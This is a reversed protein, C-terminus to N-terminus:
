RLAEPFILGDGLVSTARPWASAGGSGCRLNEPPALRAHLLHASTQCQCESFEIFRSRDELHLIGLLGRVILFGLHATM